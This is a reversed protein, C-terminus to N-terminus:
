QEGGAQRQAHRGAQARQGVWDGPQEVAESAAAVLQVGHGPPGLAAGYRADGHSEAEAKRAFRFDVAAAAGGGSRTRLLLSRPHAMAIAVRRSRYSTDSVAVSRSKAVAPM